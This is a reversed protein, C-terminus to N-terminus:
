SPSPVNSTSRTKFGFGPPDLVSKKPGVSSQLMPMSGTPPNVPRISRSGTPKRSIPGPPWPHRTIKPGVISQV